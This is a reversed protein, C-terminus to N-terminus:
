GCCELPWLKYRKSPVPDNCWPTHLIAVCFLDPYELKHGLRSVAEACTILPEAGPIGAEAWSNAHM